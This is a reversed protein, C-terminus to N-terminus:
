AVHWPIPWLWEAGHNVGFMDFLKNVLPDKPGPIFTRLIGYITRIEYDKCGYFLNTLGGSIATFKDEIQPCYISILRVHSNMVTRKIEISWGCISPLNM